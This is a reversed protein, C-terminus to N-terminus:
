IIKGRGGIPRVAYYNSKVTLPRGENGFGPRVYFSTLQLAELKDALNVPDSSGSGTVETHPTGTRGGTIVTSTQPTTGTASGVGTTGTKAPEVRTPTPATRHIPSPVDPPPSFPQAFDRAVSRPYEPRLPSYAHDRETHEVMVPRAPLTRDPLARDPIPRYDSQRVSPAM